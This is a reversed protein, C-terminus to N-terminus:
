LVSQLCCRDRVIKKLMKEVEPDLVGDTQLDAKAAAKIGVPM